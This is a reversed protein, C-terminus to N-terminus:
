DIKSLFIICNKMSNLFHLEFTKVYFFFYKSTLYQLRRQSFNVIKSFNSENKM